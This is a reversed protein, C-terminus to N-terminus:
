FQPSTAPMKSLYFLIVDGSKLSRTPSRCIYVKRITNGPMLAGSPNTVLFQAGPFLPVAKVEAIEPFLIIHFEPKIPVVYKSVEPGDYFRPYIQFDATLVDEEARRPPLTGLAIPREMILEGDQRTQTIMFGFRQLLSILLEQKPYVTLYLLNYGNGQAFWFIKKLLQEGFREGQFEAKMKLTCIKLIRPGPHITGAQAHTEEKRIVLGALQGNIEVTWCDRHERRCKSFWDDFEPYDQRLSRFLPDELSIQHTKRSVIFRLQFEKPEFTRQIWILAERVTFVRQRLGAREARRQVGIDETILFDVVGLDLTDLMQVDCRDHEDKILGFRTQQSERSRHAVRQLLPFKALKSLTASRRELNGDRRIDDICAEDLYMPLRHLSSKQALAAVESAVVKPDELAIFINADLLFKSETM